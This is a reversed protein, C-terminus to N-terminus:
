VSQQWHSVTPDASAENPAAAFSELAAANDADALLHVLLTDIGDLAEAGEWHRVQVVGILSIIVSEFCCAEIDAQSHVLLTDIGDLVEAGESHWVQM